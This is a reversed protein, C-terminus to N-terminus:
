ISPARRWRIALHGAGTAGLQRFRGNSGRRTGRTAQFSRWSPSAASPLTMPEKSWRSWRQACHLWPVWKVLTTAEGAMCAWSIDRRSMWQTVCCAPDSRGAHVAGSPRRTLPPAPNDGAGRRCWGPRRAGYPRRWILPVPNEGAGRRCRRPWRRRAPMMATPPCQVWM